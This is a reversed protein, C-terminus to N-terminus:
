SPSLSSYSADSHVPWTRTRHGLGFPRASDSHSDSHAPRTRIATRILQGFCVPQGFSSASDDQQGFPQRFSSVSDYHSDSHAPRIMRSDSHYPRIMKSDSHAPRIMRSDSHDPRTRIATQILQGFGLPQGFLSASDYHSDSHAPRIM